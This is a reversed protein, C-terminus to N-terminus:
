YKERLIESISRAFNTFGKFGLWSEGHDSLLLFPPNRNQLLRDDEGAILDIKYKDDIRHLSEPTYYNRKGPTYIVSMGLDALVRSVIERQCGELLLLVKKRYLEAGYCNIGHSVAALGERIIGETKRIPLGLVTGIDRLAGATESPGFFSVTIFPRGFRCEVRKQIMTEAVPRHNINIDVGQLINSKIQQPLLYNISLGLELLLKKAMQIEQQNQFDGLLNATFLPKDQLSLDARVPKM